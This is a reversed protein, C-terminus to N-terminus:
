MLTEKVICSVTDSMDNYIHSNLCINSKGISTSSYLRPEAIYVPVNNSTFATKRKMQIRCIMGKLLGPPAKQFYGPNEFLM